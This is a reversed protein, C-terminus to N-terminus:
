GSACRTGVAPAALTIFYRDVDTRICASNLYATHGDGVRTLLVGNALERALSQAWTYPTIPDGTSGVVVIPPSGTARIPGIHGTAPVPWVACGVESDINQVGFIPAAAQAAPGAATLAAITPAPSDLCNIAANAEFLNDYSGNPHRGTYQDFLQLLYTGDGGSAAQLAFALDKWSSTSYLTVATGYLLESPGVTRSTGQAPLPHVRVRAVLARYAAAPTGAPKWLCSAQSSCAAFFQQLQGDLGAAQQDLQSITPLAPDLAGDLVLARVHTPFLGAYTAGLLSGYSFGLYSLKSDGLAARLVDMDRAADLTGVHPLEAGSRAQCGTAFARDTAVMSAFGAATPPAPDTHFYRSLGASDLCTIPATRAVGPPDFGVIDFAARLAASMTPVVQPLADVGSAGPGGPNILLSGIKSGTAQHRDIAMGITPGGPHSPDLPVPVTACQYGKPGASGRCASWRVTPPAAGVAAGTAPASLASSPSAASSPPSSTGSGGCAAVLSGLLTAAAAVALLPRPQAM